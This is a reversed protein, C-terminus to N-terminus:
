RVLARRTAESIAPRGLAQRAVQRYDFVAESLPARTVRWEEPSFQQSRALRHSDGMQRDLRDAAKVIEETELLHIRSLAENYADFASNWELEQEFGDSEKKTLQRRAVVGIILTCTWAAAAFDALRAARVEHQQDRRALRQQLVVVLLAVMSSLAAGVLVTASETM